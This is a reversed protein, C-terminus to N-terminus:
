LDNIYMIIYVAHEIIKNDNNQMNYLLLITSISTSTDFTIICVHVILLSPAM